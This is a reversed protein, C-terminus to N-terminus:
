KTTLQYPEKLKKGDLAIVQKTRPNILVSEEKGRNTKSTILIMKDATWNVELEVFFSEDTIIDDVEDAEYSNFKFQQNPNHAYVYPLTYQQRAGDELDIVKILGALREPGEARTVRDEIDYFMAEGFGAAAFADFEDEAAQVPAPAPKAPVAKTKPRSTVSKGTLSELASDDARQLVLDEKPARKIKIEGLHSRSGGKGTGTQDRAIKYAERLPEMIKLVGNKIYPQIEERQVLQRWLARRKDMEEDTLKRGQTPQKSPSYVGQYLKVEYGQFNYESPHIELSLKYYRSLLKLAKEAKKKESSAEAHAPEPVVATTLAPGGLALVAMALQRWKVSKNSGRESHNGPRNIM